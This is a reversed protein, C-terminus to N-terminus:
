KSKAMNQKQHNQRQQEKIPMSMCLVTYVAGSPSFPQVMPISVNEVVPVASM